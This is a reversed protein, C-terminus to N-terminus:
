KANKEELYPQLNKNNQYIVKLTHKYDFWQVVPSKGVEIHSLLCSFAMYM